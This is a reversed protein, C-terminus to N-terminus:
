KSVEELWATHAQVMDGLPDHTSEIDISEINDAFIHVRWSGDENRKASGWFQKRRNNVYEIANLQREGKM